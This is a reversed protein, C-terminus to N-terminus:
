EDRPMVIEELKRKVFTIEKSFSAVSINNISKEHKTYGLFTYDINIRRAKLLGDFNTNNITEKDIQV